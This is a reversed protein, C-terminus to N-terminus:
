FGIRLVWGGPSRPKYTCENISIEDSGDIPGLTSRVTGPHAPGQSKWIALLVGLLLCLDELYCGTPSCCTGAGQEGM